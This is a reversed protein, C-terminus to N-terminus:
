RNSKLKSFLELNNRKVYNIFKAMMYCLKVNKTKLIMYMIKLYIKNPKAIKISNNFNNTNIYQYILQKKETDSVKCELNFLNVMCEILRDIYRRSIMEISNRDNSLGWYEYLSLMENHEEERKEYLNSVFKQTESDSRKRLFHYYQKKTYTVYNIDKIVSLVFPFDDRYTIPFTIKREQLYSLKYLKNWPPYFMNRDFNKYALKRFENQNDFHEIDENNSTFPIYDIVIYDDNTLYTNIYFGSIVLNSNYKKALDYLDELMNNDIYDDSDFFCVYKGSALKLANNRANHAGSNVQHIVKIRKDKKAYSDCIEGSNDISGDNVLILEFNNFSQNLVSEIAKPLYEEVNYVPMIVSIKVDDNHM